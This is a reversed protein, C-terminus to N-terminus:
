DKKVASLAIRMLYRVDSADMQMVEAVEEATAERGHKEALMTCAKDILNLRDRLEKGAKEAEEEESLFTQMADFIMRDIREDFAEDYHEEEQLALFLAMSGEQVLDMFLSAKVSLASAAEHVRYLNGEVLRNLAASDGAAKRQLLQETESATCHQIAAYESLYLDKARTTM